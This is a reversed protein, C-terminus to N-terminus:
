RLKPSEVKSVSWLPGTTTRSSAVQQSIAAIFGLEIAYVYQLDFTVFVWEYKCHLYFVFFGVAVGLSLDGRQDQRNRLGCSAAVYFGRFLLTLFAVLGYYGSEASVLKYVNHVHAALSGAVPAVGARANYGYVNAVIVYQNVGVGLPHDELIMSAATEFALREDYDSDLGQAKELAFRSNFSLVALPTITVAFVSAALMITAKRKTWERNASALFLMLYGLGALGLTARSTTAIEIVVAAVVVALPLWGTRRTLLLGFFPFAILHSILGLTNQHGETGSAQINGLVFREWVAVFAEFILGAAMGKLVNVTFGSVYCAKTVVYFIFYMRLLQWCYFLSAMPVDSQLVSFLAALFYIVMCIRFPMKYRSHPLAFLLALACADLVSFEIGHVYGPWEAWSVIAMYLHLPGLLFPLLGIVVGIKPLERSNSRLWRALAITGGLVFALAAWKV